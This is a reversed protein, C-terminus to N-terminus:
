APTEEIIVIHKRPIKLYYQPTARAWVFHDDAKDITLTKGDKGIFPRLHRYLGYDPGKIYFQKGVM